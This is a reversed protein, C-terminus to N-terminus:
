DFRRGWGAFFMLILPAILLWAQYDVLPKAFESNEYIVQLQDAPLFGLIVSAIMAAILLGYIMQVIHAMIGAGMAEHHIFVGGRLAIILMVISFLVLQVTFVSVNGNILAQNLIQSGQETVVNYLAEGWRDAVIMAAYAGLLTVVIRERLMLGYVLSVGGFALFVVDWNPIM